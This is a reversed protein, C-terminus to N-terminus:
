AIARHAGGDVTLSTGTSFGALESAYFLVASAVDTPRVLRRLPTAGVLYDRVQQSTAGQAAALEGIMQDGLDTEAANPNVANVLVGHPALE